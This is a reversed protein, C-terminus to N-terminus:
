AKKSNDQKEIGSVPKYMEEIIDGSSSASDSSFSDDLCRYQKIEAERQKKTLDDNFSTVAHEVVDAIRFLARDEDQSSQKGKRKKFMTKTGRVNQTDKLMEKVLLETDNNWFQDSDIM